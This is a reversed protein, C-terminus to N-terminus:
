KPAPLMERLRDAIRDVFDKISAEAVRHLLTKDIARGVPGLPPKYRASVSLQTLNAGLVAVELDAELTPFLSEASAAKWTMPLVTRSPFRMPEGLEIVVSRAVRRGDSGFGIEVLLDHGLEEAHEALGPLWEGPARLLAEETTALPFPLEAFYRVFM